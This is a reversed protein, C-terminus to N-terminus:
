EDRRLLNNYINGIRDTRLKLLLPFDLYVAETRKSKIDIDGDEQFHYELTRDQFSLGPLFRLHVNKTMNWSAVLALNFGAQPQNVDKHGGVYIAIRSCVGEDREKIYLSILQQFIAEGKGYRSLRPLDLRLLCALAGM